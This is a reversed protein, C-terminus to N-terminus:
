CAGEGGRGLGEIEALGGTMRGCIKICWRGRM